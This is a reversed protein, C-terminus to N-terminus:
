PLPAVRQFVETLPDESLLRWGAHTRLAEGLKTGPKIVVGRVGFRDLTAEWGAEANLTPLYTGFIFEEGYFDLRDDAFVKLEPYFEYALAGGLNESNFIPVLDPGRAEMTEAAPIGLNLGLLNGPWHAPQIWPLALWLVSFVGAWLWLVRGSRVQEEALTRMRVSIPPVARAILPAALLAFLVIHRVASFGYLLFFLAAAQEALSIKGRARV